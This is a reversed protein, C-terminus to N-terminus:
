KSSKKDLRQIVFQACLGTFLGCVVGSILLVPLYTILLPTQTIAIAVGIQGLNHAIAGVVSCVWIQNPTVVRRIASMAAWCLLGGAMSYFLVMMQGAFISGLLVRAVLIALAEKSGLRFVAYVTIINALGLKVGPVPIPAPLQAEVLFLILAVATLLAMTTLRKTM